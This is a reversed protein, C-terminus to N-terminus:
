SRKQPTPKKHAVQPKKAEPVLTLRKV